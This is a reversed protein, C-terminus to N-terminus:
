RFFFVDINRFVSNNEPRVPPQPWQGILARVTPTVEASSGQRRLFPCGKACAAHSCSGNTREVAAHFMEGQSAALGGPGDRCYTPWRLYTTSSRTQSMEYRLFSLKPSRGRSSDHVVCNQILRLRHSRHVDASGRADSSIEVM